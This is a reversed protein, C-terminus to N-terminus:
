WVSYMDMLDECFTLENNGDNDELFRKFGIPCKRRYLGHYSIREIFLDTILRMENSKTEQDTGFICAVFRVHSLIGRLQLGYRFSKQEWEIQMEFVCIMCLFETLM